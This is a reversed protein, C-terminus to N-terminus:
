LGVDGLLAEAHGALRSRRAREAHVIGCLVAEARDIADNLVLYDFLAYHEIEERAKRFRREISEPSDTARGRLRRELEQMSPPLIFVGVAHPLRAKIQRAGQYDVDFVIGARREARAREIEALSTGYRHGHVRAWEAFRGARVLADFREADVFHYDRGDQEGPRPPRTTHSVSFTLDPFAALLRRALTTKGAGSPSSLILLLLDDM